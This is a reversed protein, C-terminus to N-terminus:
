RNIIALWYDPSPLSPSTVPVAIFSDHRAMLQAASHHPHALDIAVDVPTQRLMVHTVMARSIGVATPTHAHLTCLSNYIPLEAHVKGKYNTDANSENSSAYVPVAKGSDM